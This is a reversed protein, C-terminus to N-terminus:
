SRAPSAAARVTSRRVQSAVRQSISPTLSTCPRSDAASISYIRTKRNKWRNRNVPLRSLCKRAAPHVPCMRGLTIVTSQMRGIRLGDAFQLVTFQATM